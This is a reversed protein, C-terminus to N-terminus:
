KIVQYMVDSRLVYKRGQLVPSGEHWQEHVFCLASGKKAKIKINRTRFKTEGGQYDDNLYVLFSMRSEIETTSQYRGDIHGKFRQSKDYRYFRIMENLGFAKLDAFVSPLIPKVRNWLIEAIEFDKIIARDNNRINKYMKQGSPMGVKAEEFGIKESLKRYYDCEDATLLQSITYIEDTIKTIFPKM